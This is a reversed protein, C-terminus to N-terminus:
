EGGIQAVGFVKNGSVKDSRLTELAWILFNSVADRKKLVQVVCYEGFQFSIKTHGRLDAQTGTVCGAFVILNLPLTM